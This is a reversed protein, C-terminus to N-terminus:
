CYYFFIDKILEKDEASYEKFKKKDLEGLVYKVKSPEIENILENSFEKNEIYSDILKKLKLFLEEKGM